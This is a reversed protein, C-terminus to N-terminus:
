PTESDVLFSGKGCCGTRIILVPSITTTLPSCGGSVTADIGVMRGSLAGGHVESLFVSSRVPGVIAGFEVENQIGGEWGAAGERDGM